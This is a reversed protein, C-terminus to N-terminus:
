LFSYDVTENAPTGIRVSPGDTITINWFTTINKECNAIKAGTKHRQIGFEPHSSDIIVLYYFTSYYEFLQRQAKYLEMVDFGLIKKCNYKRWTWLFPSITSFQLKPSKSPMSIAGLWGL